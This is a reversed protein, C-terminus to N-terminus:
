LTKAISIACNVGDIASSMIGGAYGAGEGCPYMNEIQIHQMTEKNRPIRITSSTRSEMALIIAENTIFGKIKKDFDAFAKKLRTTFFDPLWNHIPSSVTGPLYSNEPINQSIKNNCFDALRQVPAIIRNGGNNFAMQELEQQFKLGAMVNYKETNPIDEINIQVAIGSNAFNSNRAAPSMGNVVCQRYGTAAPVIYGGPCMCFSYVARKGAHTKLSYTAAPLCSTKNGHYQIEDILQQPHEVRVGMAFPKLELVIGKNYLMQYIDNASHGSALILTEANIKDKNNIIIQKVRNKEFVIDTLKSEFLIEGGANIITSRINKIIGPLKDTGIHPHADYLINENAGHQILINLIRNVNGRKTARTYLKGDSFTGAGGEGFCYNSEPNITKTKIIGAIDIKRKSVEKGREIIVPKIGNEILTLASFLGAPGSGIIIVSKKNQLKDYKIITKGPKNNGKYLKLKLHVIIKRKRADVSRKIIEIFNINKIETHSEVFNKIKNKDFAIEPPVSLSIEVIDM